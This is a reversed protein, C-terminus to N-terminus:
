QCNPIIVDRLYMDAVDKLVFVHLMRTTEIFIEICSVDKVNDTKNNFVSLGRAGDKFFVFQM